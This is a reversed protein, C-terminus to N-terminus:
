QSKTGYFLLAYRLLSRVQGPINLPASYSDGRKRVREERNSIKWKWPVWRM